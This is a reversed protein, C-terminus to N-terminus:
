ETFGLYGQPTTFIVHLESFSPVQGAGWLQSTTAGIGGTAGGHHQGSPLWPAPLNTSYGGEVPGTTM